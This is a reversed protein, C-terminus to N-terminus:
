KRLKTKVVPDKSYSELQTNRRSSFHELEYLVLIHNYEILCTFCKMHKDHGATKDVAFHLHSKHELGSVSLSISEVRVNNTQPVQCGTISQCCGPHLLM